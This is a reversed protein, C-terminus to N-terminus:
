CGESKEGMYNIFPAGNKMGNISTVPPTKGTTPSQTTTHTQSAEKCSLLFTALLSLTIISTKM